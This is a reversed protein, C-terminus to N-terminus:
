KDFKYSYLVPDYEYLEKDKNYGKIYKGPNQKFYEMEQDLFADILKHNIFGKDTSFLKGFCSKDKRAKGAAIIKGLEVNNEDRPNQVSVGLRVEKVIQDENFWHSFNNESTIDEIALIDKESSVAAMIVQRKDGTFDTFYDVKYVIREM